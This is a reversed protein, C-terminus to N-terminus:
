PLTERRKYEGCRDSWKVVPRAEERNDDELIVTPPYRWCEAFEEATLLNKDEGGAFHECTACQPKPKDTM